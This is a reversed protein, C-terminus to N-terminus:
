CYFGKNDNEKEAEEFENGGRKRSMLFGLGLLVLWFLGSGVTLVNLVYPNLVKCGSEGM